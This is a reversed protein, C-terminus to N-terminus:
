STVRRLLTTVYVDNLSVSPLLEIRFQKGVDAAHFARVYSSAAGPQLETLGDSNTVDHGFQQGSLSVLTPPVNYDRYEIRVAQDSRTNRADFSVFVIGGASQYSIFHRLTV